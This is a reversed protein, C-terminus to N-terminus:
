KISLLLYNAARSVIRAAQQRGLFQRICCSILERRRLHHVDMDMLRVALEVTMVTYVNRYKSAGKIYDACDIQLSDFTFFFYCLGTGVHLPQKSCLFFCM